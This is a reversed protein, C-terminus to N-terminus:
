SDVPRGASARMLQHGRLKVGREQLVVNWGQRTGIIRTNEFLGRAEEQKTLKEFKARLPHDPAVFTEKRHLIFPNTTERYDRYEIQLGKFRVKLSERLAPHPDTEFDPYALYSVQPKQRHMKLINADDVSGVYVRACGEYVRLLPPAQPLADIHLYLAEQTCKGIPSEACARSVAEQNGASFLLEDAENCADRYSSFLARADLRLAEPLERLSPRGGFRALALYVLLDQARERTIEEWQEPGTVQRIVGFARKISGFEERIEAALSLESDEPLRGRDAFFEMLPDLLARNEEFLRESRSIRIRPPRARRRFRSALYTQALQPDRFVYFVGPAAPVGPVGLTGEIWERLEQQEYFRQFTGRGTVFGDGCPSWREETIENTLRASVILARLALNWASRLTEAREQPDEIVNIVYGLNVVDAPVRTANPRFAPDWGDCRIGETHLRRLDGGRGCGYDFVSTDARIVGDELALRVPRSVEARKMATRHREVLGEIGSAELM